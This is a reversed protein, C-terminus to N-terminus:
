FRNDAYTSIAASIVSKLLFRIRSWGPVAISAWALIAGCLMSENSPYSSLAFLFSSLASLM